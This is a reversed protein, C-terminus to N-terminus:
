PLSRRRSHTPVHVGREERRRHNPDSLRRSKHREQRVQHSPMYGKPKNAPLAKLIDSIAKVAQQRETIGDWVVGPQNLQPDAALLCRRLAHEFSEEQGQPTRFAQYFAQSKPSLEARELQWRRWDLQKQQCFLQVSLAQPWLPKYGEYTRLTAQVTQSADRVQQYPSPQPGQPTMQPRKSLPQANQQKLSQKLTQNAKRFAQIQKEGEQLHARLEKAEEETILKNDLCFQIQQKATQVEKDADGARALLTNEQEPLLPSHKAYITDVGIAMGLFAYAGGFLCLVGFSFAEYAAVFGGALLAGGMILGVGLRGWFSRPWSGMFAYALAGVAGIGGLIALAIPQACFSLLISGLTIALFGLCLGGVFGGLARILGQIGAQVPRPFRKRTMPIAIRPTM